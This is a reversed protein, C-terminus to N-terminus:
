RLHAEHGPRGLRQQEVTGPLRLPLVLLIFAPDHGHARPSDRERDCRDRRDRTLRRGAGPPGRAGANARAGRPRSADRRSRHAAEALVAGTRRPRKGGVLQHHRRRGKGLQGDARAAAADLAAHPRRSLVQLPEHGHLHGHAPIRGKAGAFPDRSSQRRLDRLGTRAHVRRQTKRATRRVGADRRRLRRRRAVRPAPPWRASTKRAGM